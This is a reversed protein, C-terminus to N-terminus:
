HASASLTVIPVQQMIQLAFNFCPLLLVAFKSRSM